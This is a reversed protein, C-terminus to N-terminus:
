VRDWFVEKWIIVMGLTDRECYALLYRRTEAEDGDFDGTIM